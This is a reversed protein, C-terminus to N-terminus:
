LNVSPDWCFCFCSTKPEKFVKFTQVEREPSSFLEFFKSDVFVVIGSSNQLYLIWQVRVFALCPGRVTDGKLGQIFIHGFIAKM